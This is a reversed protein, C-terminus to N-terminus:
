YRGNKSWKSPSRQKPSKPDNHDNVVHHEM